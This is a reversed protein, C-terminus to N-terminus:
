ARVPVGRATHEQSTVEVAALTAIASVMEVAHKMRFPIFHSMHVCTYQLLPLITALIHTDLTTCWAWLLQVTHLPQGVTHATRLSVTM